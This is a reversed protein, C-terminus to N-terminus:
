SHAASVYKRLLALQPSTIASRPLFIGRDLYGTRLFIHSGLEEIGKFYAWKLTTTGFSAAFSISESTFSVLRDEALQAKKPLTLSMIGLYVMELVLPALALAWGLPDSVDRFLVLIGGIACLARSALWSWRRIRLNLLALILEPRSVRYRIQEEQM